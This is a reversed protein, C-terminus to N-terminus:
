YKYCHKRVQFCISGFVQFFPSNTDQNVSFKLHDMVSFSIIGNPPNFLFGGINAKDYKIIKQLSKM